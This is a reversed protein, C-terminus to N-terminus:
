IDNRIKINIISYVTSLIAIHIWLYPRLINQNMQLIIFEMVLAIIYAKVIENSNPDIKAKIKKYKEYILIYLYRLWFIFGFIGLASLMEVFVSMGAGRSISLYGNNYCIEADVGGLSCGVIPNKKFVEFTNRLGKLRDSSSHSSTGAIGLGQFYRIVKTNGRSLQYICWMVFFCIAVPALILFFRWISIKKNGTKLLLKFSRFLIYGAMMVIGMRSTSLIMAVTIITTYLVLKKKNFISFNSKELLYMCITWGMLLYTAYYSPEYSFGNCRHMNNKQTVFFYINSFQLVWQILGICAMIVFCTIYKYTISELSESKSFYYVFILIELADFVFWIEYGIADLLNRSNFMFIANLIVCLALWFYGVPISVVGNRFVAIMFCMMVIIIMIQSIRVTFGAVDFVLFIDFSSTLVSLWILVNIFNKLSLKVSM